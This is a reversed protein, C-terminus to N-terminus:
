AAMPRPLTAMASQADEKNALGKVMIAKDSRRVVRWRHLPAFNVEYLTDAPVTEPRDGMEVYKLVAVVASVKDSNRVVLEAYWSNDEARVEIRDWPKLKSAAHAWYEPRLIDSLVTGHTPCADWVTRVFEAQRFRPPILAAVKAPMEVPLTEAEAM